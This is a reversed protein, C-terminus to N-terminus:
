NVIKRIYQMCESYTGKYKFVGMDKRHHGFDIGKFTKGGDTKGQIYAKTLQTLDVISCQISLHCYEVDRQKDYVLRIGYSDFPCPLDVSIKLPLNSLKHPSYVMFVDVDPGNFNDSKTHFSSMRNGFDSKITQANYFVRNEWYGYRGVKREIFSTIGKVILDIDTINDIKYANDKLDSKFCSMHLKAEQGFSKNKYIDMLTETIYWSYNGAETTDNDKFPILCCSGIGNSVKFVVGMPEYEEYESNVTAETITTSNVAFSRERLQDPVRLIWDYTQQIFAEISTSNILSLFNKFALSEPQFMDCHVKITKGSEEVTPIIMSDYDDYFYQLRFRFGNHHCHWVFLPKKDNFVQLGFEKLYKEVKDVIFKHKTILDLCRFYMARAHEGANELKEIKKYPNNHNRKPQTYSNEDYESFVNPTVLDRPYWYDDFFPCHEIKPVSDFEQLISAGIRDLVDLTLPARAYIVSRDIEEKQKKVNTLAKNVAKLQTSHVDRLNKAISAQDLISQM